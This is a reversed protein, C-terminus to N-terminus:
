SATASGGSKVGPQNGVTLVESSASVSLPSLVVGWSDADENIDLQSGLAASSTINMSASLPTTAPLQSSQAALGFLLVLRLIKTKMLSDGKARTHHWFHPWFLLWVNDSM